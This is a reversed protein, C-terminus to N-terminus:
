WGSSEGGSSPVITRHSGICYITMTLRDTSAQFSVTSQAKAVSPYVSMTVVIMSASRSPTPPLSSCGTRTVIRDKKKENHQNCHYLAYSIGYPGDDRCAAAVLPSDIGDLGLPYKYQV